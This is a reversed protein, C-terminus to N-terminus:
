LDGDEREEEKEKKKKALRERLWRVGFYIQQENTMEIKEEEGRSRVSV